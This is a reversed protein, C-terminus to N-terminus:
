NNKKLNKIASAFDTYHLLFLLITIGIAIILNSRGDITMLFTVLSLAIIDILINRKNYTINCFSRINIVMYITQSIYCLASAICVGWIGIHPTLLICFLINVFAGTISVGVKKKTMKYTSYMTGLLSAMCFILASFMILPLYEKATYFEGRLTIKAIIPSMCIMVTGFAAYLSIFLNIITSYYSEHEESDEYAKSTNLQFAAYVAQQLMNIVASIKIAAVYLGATAADTFFLLVYRGSITTVWYLINYLILPISYQLLLENTKKNYVSDKFDEKIKGKYLLYLGSIVYSAGLSVLYGEEGYNFIVLFLVNCVGLALANIIGSIAFEKSLGKGRVYYAACMRFSYTYLIFYLYYSYKYHFILRVPVAIFLGIIMSLSLVKAVSKTIEGNDVVPDIAFRFAAEYICLTVIPFLLESLNNTLEATGYATATMYSTYLPMLLFQIAKAMVTGIIFIGMDGALQRYRNNTM